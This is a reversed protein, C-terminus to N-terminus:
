VLLFHNRLECRAYTRQAITRGELACSLEIGHRCILCSAEMAISFVFPCGNFIFLM